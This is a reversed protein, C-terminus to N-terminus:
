KNVARMMESIPLATPEPETQIYGTPQQSFICQTAQLLVADKTAQDVAAKAFTQFTALANQRHRNVVANHRYARYTKGCWVTALLVSFVFLKPIAMQVSQSPTLM